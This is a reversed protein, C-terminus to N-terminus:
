SLMLKQQFSDNLRNDHTVILLTANNKQAQDKLLNIVALCNQDDLASTPEDALILKPQSILARAITVRQKEGQSLNKVSSKLKHGISLDDLIKQIAGNDKKGGTLTQAMQLNEQVSLAELFHPTQFVIGINSGRFQDMEAGSLKSIDTTGIQVQGIKPKLLGSLLHLLTTKGCGSAGLILAQEGQNYEFDPFSIENEANYRYTLSEAKIM